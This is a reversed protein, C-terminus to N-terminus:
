VVKRVNVLLGHKFVNQSKVMNLAINTLKTINVEIYVYFTLTLDLYFIQISVGSLSLSLM